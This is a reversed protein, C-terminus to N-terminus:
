VASEWGKGDARLRQRRSREARKASREVGIAHLGVANAAALMGGEGCFPNVITHSDTQEAVFRAIIKCADLGMGREWTKDGVAPLVDVTALASDTLRRERSFCLIHSYAPRFHTPRGAPSRCAIKHWLLEQGLKEAAKQCLYGKDVWTGGYRIDSQYFITVGTPSCRSLILEATRLFWAKWEGLGYGHFESIDPLSSVFSCGSFDREVGLWALADECHVIRTSM